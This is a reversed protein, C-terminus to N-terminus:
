ASDSVPYESETRFWDVVTNLTRFGADLVQTWLGLIGTHQIIVGVESASLIFDHFSDICFNKMNKIPVWFYKQFNLLNSNDYPVHFFLKM